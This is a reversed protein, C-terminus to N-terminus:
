HPVESLPARRQYMQYIHHAEHHALYEMQFHVDYHPYEPHRAPRHWDGPSLTELRSLLRARDSLFAALPEAAPQAALREFELDGEPAYSVIQPNEQALIRDLRAEFIQQVRLVHCVIEKLSWKEPIVRRALAEEDLGSALREVDEAQGRLREIVRRHTKTEAAPEGM